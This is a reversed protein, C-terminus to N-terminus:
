NYKRKIKVVNLFNIHVVNSDSHFLYSIELWGDLVTYKDELKNKPILAFKVKTDKGHREAGLLVFKAPRVTSSAIASGVKKVYNDNPNVLAIGFQGDFSVESGMFHKNILDLLDQKSPVSIAYTSSLRKPAMVHYIKIRLDM